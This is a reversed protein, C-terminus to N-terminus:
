EDESLHVNSKSVAVILDFLYKAIKRNNIKYYASVLELTEKRKMPDDDFSEASEKLALGKRNESMTLMMPSQVEVSPAMDEFFFDMSVGLVRSIDFLRSAGVRNAGKEYKQIQQFTLGMKQAMQQQSLKLVQRRLKIRQGVHIDVPNPTGEALRGRRSKEQITKM